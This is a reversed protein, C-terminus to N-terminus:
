LSSRTRTRRRKPNANVRALADVLDQDALFERESATMIIAPEFIMTGNPEEHALYQDFRAM